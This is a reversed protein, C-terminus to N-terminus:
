KHPAPAPATTTPASMTSTPASEPAQKQAENKQCGSVALVAAVAAVTIIATMKKM